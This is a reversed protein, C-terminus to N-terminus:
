RGTRDLQTLRDRDFAYGLRVEQTVGDPLLGEVPRRTPRKGSPGLNHIARFQGLPTRPAQLVRERTPSRSNTTEREQVAVLNNGTPPPPANELPEEETALPNQPPKPSAAVEEERTNEQGMQPGQPQPPPAVEEERTNEQGMQPGPPQPPPAADKGTTKKKGKQPGRPLPSSGRTTSDSDESGSSSSEETSDETAAESDTDSIEESEESEESITDSEGFAELFKKLMKTRKLPRKGPSKSALAETHNRKKIKVSTITVPPTGLDPKPPAMKPKPPFWNKRTSNPYSDRFYRNMQQRAKNFCDRLFDKFVRWWEQYEQEKSDHHGWMRQFQRFHVTTINDIFMIDYMLGFTGHSKLGRLGYISILGRVREALYKKRYNDLLLVRQVDEILTPKSLDKRPPM